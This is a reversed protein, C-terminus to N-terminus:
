RLQLVECYQNTVTTWSFQERLQYNNRGIEDFKDRNVALFGLIETLGKETNFIYGNTNVTIIESAIGVPTSIILRGIVFPEVISLGFTESNSAVIAVNNSIYLEKIKSRPLSGPFLIQRSLNLNETLEIMKERLPGDGPLTLTSNLDNFNRVYDAFARIIMEQNKGKRFQAPFIIKLSKIDPNVYEELFFDDRIGLPIVSIKNSLLRFKRECYKSLCIIYDAWLFLGFGIIKRAFFSKIISNHRFGHLTYAIEVHRKFRCFQKVFAAITLQWNNQVHIIDIDNRLVIHRIACVLRGFHKHSDLGEIRVIKIGNRIIRLEDDDECQKEGAVAFVDIGAKHISILQDTLLGSLGIKYDSAFFLLRKM